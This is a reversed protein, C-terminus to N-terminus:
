STKGNFYSRLKEVQPRTFRYIGGIRGVGLKEGADRIMGASVGLIEGVEQSTYTYYFDRKYLLQARNM